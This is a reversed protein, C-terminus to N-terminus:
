LANKLRRIENILLPINQKASAIFDHDSKTAGSLEIDEGRNTETGTMIFDSGAVHDRGEIYSKWPGPTTAECREQIDKLKQDSIFEQSM